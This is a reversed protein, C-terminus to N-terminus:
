QQQIQKLICITSEKIYVVVCSFCCPLAGSHSLSYQKITVWKHQTIYRVDEFVGGGEFLGGGSYAVM